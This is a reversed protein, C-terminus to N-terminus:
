PTGFTGDENIAVKYIDSEGITGPMDSVFYLTKGDPSIAPHGVSYESNNFPVPQIDRWTGDVLEAYYINLQNIGEQDKRYKGRYFDNRDFYMRNGDPSIAVVGEHYRTNVDGPLPSINTFSGNAYDAVYIDYFPEATMGHSRRSTNRSSTFYFKNGSVEGGFDSHASNIGEAFKVTHREAEEMLKPIYNPNNKFARARSDSPALQAFRNMWDNSENVKGNAKLTQAYSYLLEPDTSSEAVQRFYPEAKETNNIFYYSNALRTYVYDDARGREVLKEYEEAAKVYELRDFHQDAKKTDRNQAFAMTTGVAMFILLLYIKKM